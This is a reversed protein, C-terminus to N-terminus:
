RRLGAPDAATGKGAGAQTRRERRLRVLLITWVCAFVAAAILFAGAAGTAGYASGLIILAPVLVAIEAGQAVLRLAPRGISVPFSKAWGWFVQIAAVLLFLRAANAAPSAAAGYV